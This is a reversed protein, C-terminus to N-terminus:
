IDKQDSSGAPLPLAIDVSSIRGATPAMLTAEAVMQGGAAGAGGSGVRAGAQKWPALKPRAM